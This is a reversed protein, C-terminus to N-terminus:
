FPFTIGFSLKFADYGSGLKGRMEVFGKIAGMPFDMGTLLNFAAGVDTNNDIIDNEWSLIEVVPAMGMGVYPGVPINPPLPFYYRADMNFDLEFINVDYYRLDAPYRYDNHHSAFWFEPNPYIAITGARDLGINLLYHGGFGFGPGFHDAAVFSLKFGAGMGTIGPAAQATIAALGLAVLVNRFNPKRMRIEKRQKIVSKSARIL